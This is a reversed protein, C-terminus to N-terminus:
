IVFIKVTFNYDVDYEFFKLDNHSGNAIKFKGGTLKYEIDLQTESNNSTDMINQVKETDDRPVYGLKFISDGIITNVVIANKDYPNNPEPELNISNIVGILNTEFLSGSPSIHENTWEEYPIFLKRERAFDVMDRIDYYKAGQVAFEFIEHKTDKTILIEQVIDMKNKKKSIPGSCKPLDLSELYKNGITNNMRIAIDTTNATKNLYNSNIDATCISCIRNNDATKFTTSFPRVKRNCIKCQTM